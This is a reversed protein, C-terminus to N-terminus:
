DYTVSDFASDPYLPCTRVRGVGIVYLKHSRKRSRNEIKVRTLARVVGVGDSSFVLRLLMVCSRSSLRAYRVSNESFAGSLEYRKKANVNAYVRTPGESSLGATLLRHHCRTLVVCLNFVSVSVAVPPKCYLPPDLIKKILPHM